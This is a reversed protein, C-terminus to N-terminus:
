NLPAYEELFKVIIPWSEPTLSVKFLPRLKNGCEVIDWWLDIVQKLQILPSATTSSHIFLHDVVKDDCCCCEVENTFKM